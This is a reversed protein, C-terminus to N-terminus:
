LDELSKVQSLDLQIKVRQERIISGVSVPLLENELVENYEELAAEDGRIAEELMAEDSNGTFFAKVDMWARHIDGSFSGSEESTNYANFLERKLKANFDERENSKRIFFSKLQANQSNESAKLYGKVADINKELIESLQSKLDTQTHEM